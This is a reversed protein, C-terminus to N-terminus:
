ATLIKAMTTAYILILLFNFGAVADIGEQGGTSPPIVHPAPFRADLIWFGSDLM